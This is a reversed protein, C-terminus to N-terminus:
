DPPGRGEAGDNARTSAKLEAEVAAWQRTWSELNFCPDDPAARLLDALDATAVRVQAPNPPTAQIHAVAQPPTVPEAAATAETLIRITLQEVSLQQKQARDQLEAVLEDDLTLTITM